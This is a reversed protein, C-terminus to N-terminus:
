QEKEYNEDEKPKVYNENYWYYVTSVLSLIIVIPLLVLINLIALVYTTPNSINEPPCYTLYVKFAIFSMMVLLNFASRYNEKTEKYPHTLLTFILMATCPILSLYPQSPILTVLLIILILVITYIFYHYKALRQEKFSFCFFGFSEPNRYFQIFVGVFFVSGILLLIISTADKAGDAVFFMGSCAFFYTLNFLTCYMLFQLSLSYHKALKLLHTQEETEEPTLKINPNM